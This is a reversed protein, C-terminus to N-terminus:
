CWVALHAHVTNPMMELPVPHVVVVKIELFVLLVLHDLHGLLDLAALLHRPRRNVPLDGPAPHDKPDLHDKLDLVEVDLSEMVVLHDLLDPYVPAALHDPNAPFEGLDQHDVVATDLELHDLTVRQDLFAWPDPIVPHDLLVLLACAADANLSFRTLHPQAMAAQDDLSVPSVLSAM